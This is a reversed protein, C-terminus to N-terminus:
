CTCRIDCLVCVDCAGLRRDSDGTKLMSVHRNYVVVESVQVCTQVCTMGRNRTRTTDAHAARYRILGVHTQTCLPNVREDVACDDCGRAIEIQARVIDVGVV